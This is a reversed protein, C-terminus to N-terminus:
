FNLARACRVNYSVSKGNINQASGSGFVQWYALGAPGSPGETSSWYTGSLGGFGLLALNTNINALGTACGAGLGSGGMQCIAPLYWTGVSAGGSTRNYCDLGATPSIGNNKIMATNSFGNTFSGANTLLYYGWKQSFTATDIVQVTTMDTIEWVLFGQVTFALALKPANSINDGIVPINGQAVYPKTTTFTITCTGNNPAISTCNSADQTVGTWGSPLTVSVNYATFTTGTNTITISGSGSGVPITGTANVSLTTTNNACSVLIDTVNSSGMTGTGNSVTCTQLGPQSSVTVNYTSGAAVVTAFTFSGNASRTLTDGSNNQLSVSGSLGSITGGLTYTNTSCTVQVTTVASSGMTGTGNSVTCTQTAPQSSITVSYTSGEAVATTFTFSGGSNKTLANSGNNKLTVSGSLGTITGGVTYTNTSCTVQVNTVASSGMTGTGNSVTCTETAPQSSITVNYSTGQAVATAFTFSGDANQTLADGGNNKLSVSGSLGSITGSLTHTNTTCDVQVNTVASSGM